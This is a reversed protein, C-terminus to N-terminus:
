ADRCITASIVGFPQPSPVFIDNQNELNLKELDALLHHQNPMNLSIEQLQPCAALVSSAMDHLTKQVSPSYQHCFVDLLLSRITQRTTAWDHDHDACPWDAAITTAFIRDGTEKLTTFTDVHFGEFGSETTKLIQLGTIGSTLEVGDATANVTCINQESGGGTFAHGHAAGDLDIRQWLQETITVTSKTVQDFADYFHNALHLGYKEISEVGKLRAIAYVTNKMTDTPIVMSNDGDSYAKDFDGELAIDAVLQTFNHAQDGRDIYSLCVSAKGYSQQSLSISM